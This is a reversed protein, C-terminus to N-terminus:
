HKAKCWIEKPAQLIFMEYDHLQTLFGENPDAISRKTRIYELFSLTWSPQTKRIYPFIFQENCLLCSIFFAIVISVSRSIGARCHVLINRGALIHKFIINSTTYFLEHIPEDPQDKLRFFYHDIGVSNLNPPTHEYMFSLVTHINHKKFINLTSYYPQVGSIYIKAGNPYSIIKSIEDM